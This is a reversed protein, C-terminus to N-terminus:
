FGRGGVEDVIETLQGDERRWRLDGFQDRSSMVNAFAAGLGPAERLQEYYKVYEKGKVELNTLANVNAFETVFILKDPYLERMYSYFGGKEENTMELEANWFCNVGVWDALLIADDAQEIFTKADLRQGEM